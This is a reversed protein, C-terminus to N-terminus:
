VYVAGGILSLWQLGPSQGCLDAVTNPDLSGKIRYVRELCSAGDMAALTAKQLTHEEEKINQNITTGGGKEWSMLWTRSSDAGCDAPAIVYDHRGFGPMGGASSTFAYQWSLHMLQSTTNYENRVIIPSGLSADGFDINPLIHFTADLAKCPLFTSESTVVQDFLINWTPWLNSQAFFDAFVKFPINYLRQDFSASMPATQLNRELSMDLCAPRESAPTKLTWFPDFRNGWPGVDFGAQECADNQATAAHVSGSFVCFLAVVVLLGLFSSTNSM